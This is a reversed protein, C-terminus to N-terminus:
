KCQSNLKEKAQEERFPNQSFSAFIKQRSVHVYDPMLGIQQTTQTCLVAFSQLCIAWFTKKFEKEPLSVSQLSWPSM